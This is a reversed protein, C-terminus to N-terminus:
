LPKDEFEESSTFQPDGLYQDRRSLGDPGFTKGSKHRLTFYRRSGGILLLM